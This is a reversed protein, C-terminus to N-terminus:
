LISIYHEIHSAMIAVVDLRWHAGYLGHQELFYDISRLLAKKKFYTIAEYPFGFKANKRFKVEVFVLENHDKAVIDIEGWRCYWNCELVGYNLGELFKKAVAEGYIGKQKNAVILHYARISLFTHIM